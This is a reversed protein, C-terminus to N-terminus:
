GLAQQELCRVVEPLEHLSLIIADPRATQQSSHNFRAPRDFPDVQLLDGDPANLKWVTKFGFRSPAEVDDEYHDGVSIQLRTSRPWHGYFAAEQKLAHHVDPTLIDTFLPTLGLADLVPLQYKRLGKTAAVIARQPSVLLQLVQGADDLVASYPPGAHSNAIELARAELRVGLRAAVTDLIDDWDVALTAPIGSTKQRDLYEQFVRRRVEKVDVKSKAALEPLVVPFVASEFPGKLITADLDIFVVCPWARNLKDRSREL